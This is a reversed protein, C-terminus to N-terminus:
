FDDPNVIRKKVQDEVAGGIFFLLLVDVWGVAVLTGLPLFLSDMTLAASSNTLKGFQQVIYVIMTVGIAGSGIANGILVRRKRWFLLAAVVGLATPFIVYVLVYWLIDLV